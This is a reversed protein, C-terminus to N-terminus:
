ARSGIMFDVVRSAVISAPVSYSGSSVAAQIGAIKDARVDTGAAMMSVASGASSLTAGDNGLM